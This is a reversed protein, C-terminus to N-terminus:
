GSSTPPIAVYKGWTIVGNGDEEVIPQFSIGITDVIIQGNNFLNDTVTPITSSEDPLLTGKTLGAPGISIPHM